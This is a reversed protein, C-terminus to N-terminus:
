RLFRHEGGPSFFAVPQFLSSTASEVAPCDGIKQFHRFTLKFYSKATAETPFLSM